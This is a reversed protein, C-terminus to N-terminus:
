LESGPAEKGTTHPEGLLDDFACGGLEVRRQKQDGDNCNKNRRREVERDVGGIVPRVRCERIRGLARVEQGHTMSYGHQKQYEVQAVQQELHPCM